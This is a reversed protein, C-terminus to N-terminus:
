AAGWKKLLEQAPLQHPHMATAAVKKVAEVAPKGVEAPMSALAALCGGTEPYTGGATTEKDLVRVLGPVAAAQIQRLEPTDDQLPGYVPAQAKNGRVASLDVAHRSVHEPDLAVVATAAAVRVAYRGDLFLKKLVPLIRPRDQTRTALEAILPLRDKTAFHEVEAILDDTTREGIPKFIGSISPGL